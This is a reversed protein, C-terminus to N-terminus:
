PFLPWVDSKLALKSYPITVAAVSQSPSGLRTLADKAEQFDPKAQIVLQLTDSAMKSDGSQAEALALIYQARWVDTKESDMAPVIMQRADMPRGAGVYALALNHQVDYANPILTLTHELVPVAAAANNQELLWEGLQANALISKPDLAVSQQMEAIGQDLKGAQVDAVGKGYHAAPLHTKYIWVGAALLASVGGVLVQWTIRDAHAAQEAATPMPVPMPVASPAPVPGLGLEAKMPFLPPIVAGLILGALLGGVHASNDIGGHAAGWFLNYGIFFALSRLQRLMLARDIPTKKLALYAVFAGAVGFIAGSAGASVQWPNWALSVLSAALGSLVYAVAFAKRGMFFELTRGLSWLCWMNFGIHIIGFHVFMNTLARWWQGGLTLVGYDAGWRIADRIMPEMWSVGSLGMAVYVLV